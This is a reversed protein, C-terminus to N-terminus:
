CGVRRAWREANQVRQSVLRGANPSTSSGWGLLRGLALTQDLLFVLLENEPTQFARRSPATVYMNPMGIAHQLGITRGWQIAGRVRDASIEEELATTTSLRRLLFPMYELLAGLQDSILFQLSGLTRLEHPRMQLLAAAELVETEIDAAPTLYRWLDHHVRDILDSRRWPLTRM